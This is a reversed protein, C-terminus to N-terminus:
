RARTKKKKEEEEKGKSEGGREGKEAYEGVEEFETTVVM